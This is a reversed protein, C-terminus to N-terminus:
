INLPDADSFKTIGLKWLGVRRWVQIVGDMGDEVVFM